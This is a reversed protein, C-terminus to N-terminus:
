TSAFRRHLTSPERRARDLRTTQHLRGKERTVKGDQTVQTSGLRAPGM